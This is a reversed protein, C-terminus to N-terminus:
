NKYLIIDVTNNISDQLFYKYGDINGINYKIKDDSNLLTDVISGMFDEKIKTLSTTDGSFLILKSNFYLENKFETIKEKELTPTEEM